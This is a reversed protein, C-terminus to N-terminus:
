CPMRSTSRDAPRTPLASPIAASETKTMDVPTMPCGSGTSRIAAPTDDATATSEECPPCSAALAIMVVSVLGAGSQGTVEANALEEQMKAMKEQMQQAQKMINGMGGKFM